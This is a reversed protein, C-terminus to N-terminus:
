MFSYLKNLIEQTPKIPKSNKRSIDGITGHPIDFVNAIDRNTMNFFGSEKKEYVWQVMSWKLQEKTLREPHFKSLYYQLNEPSRPKIDSRVQNKEYNSVLSNSIGFEDGIDKLTARIVGKKSLNCLYKINAIKIEDESLSDIHYKSLIEEINDPIIMNINKYVDNKCDQLMQYHTSFEKYISSDSIKIVEHERLFLIYKIYGVKEESFINITSNDDVGAINTIPHGENKYKQILDLEKELADQESCFRDVIKISWDESTEKYLECTANRTGNYARNGIGKGVYFIRDKNDKYVYVYFKKSETSM